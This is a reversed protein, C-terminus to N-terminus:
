GHRRAVDVWELGAIDEMYMVTMGQQHLWGAEQEEASMVAESAVLSPTRWRIQGSASIM